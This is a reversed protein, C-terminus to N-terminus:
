PLLEKLRVLAICEIEELATAREVEIDNGLRRGFSALVDAKDRDKIAIVFPFGFRAKYADNLAHFWALEEPTLRDLGASAQGGSSAATLKDALALKGALDPHARVLALQREPGAARLVRCMAEHLDEATRANEGLGEDWVAEAVWPSHEFVGGYRDVFAQRTLREPRHDTM